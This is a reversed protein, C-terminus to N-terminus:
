EDGAEKAVLARVAQGFPTIRLGDDDEETLYAVVGDCVNVGACAFECVDNLVNETVNSPACNADSGDSPLWLLAERQRQTLGEAVHAALTHALDTM